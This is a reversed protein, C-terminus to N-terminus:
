VAPAALPSALSKYAPSEVLATSYAENKPSVVVVSLDKGSEPLIAGDYRGPKYKYYLLIQVCGLVVGASNVGAVFWDNDVIGSAVWLATSVAMMVSMNIPISAASKMEVVRKLTALPSTFMATSFAVGIYGLSTGLDDRSIGLAGVLGLICYLDVVCYISFAYAYLKLLRKRKDAPSWRFYFVNFIMGGVQGIAQTVVMPFIQNNAVGYWTWLNCNVVLTIIPLEAMEGISKHKHVKYIDPIPSLKFMLEFVATAVAILTTLVSM